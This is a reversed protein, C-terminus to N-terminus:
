LVGPTSVVTFWTHIFRSHEMLWIWVHVPVSWALPERVMPQPFHISARHMVVHAQQVNVSEVVNGSFRSAARCQSIHQSRCKKTHEKMELLCGEQWSELSFSPDHMNWDLQHDWGLPCSGSYILNRNSGKPNFVSPHKLQSLETSVISERVHVFLRIEWETSFKARQQWTIKIASFVSEFKEDVRIRILLFVKLISSLHHRWCDGWLEIDWVCFIIEVKRCPLASWIHFFSFASSSFSRNCDCAGQCVRPMEQLSWRWPIWSLCLSICHSQSFHSAQSIVLCVGHPHIETLFFERWSYESVIEQRIALKAKLFIPHTRESCIVESGKKKYQHSRTPNWDNLRKSSWLTCM